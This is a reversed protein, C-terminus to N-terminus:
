SKSFQFIDAFFVRKQAFFVRNKHIFGVYKNV